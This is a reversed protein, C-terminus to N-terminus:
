NWLGPCFRPDAGCPAHPRIPPPPPVTPALPECHWRSPDFYTNGACGDGPTAHAVGGGFFMAGAIMASSILMLLRTHM